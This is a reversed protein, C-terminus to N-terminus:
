IGDLSDVQDFTLISYVVETFSGMEADLNMVMKYEAVLGMAYDNRIKSDFLVQTM